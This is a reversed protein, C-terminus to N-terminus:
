HNIYYREDRINREINQLANLTRKKDRLNLETVIANLVVTIAALSNSFMINDTKIEICHHVSDHIPSAKKDTFAIVPIGLDRAFAVAEVTARSYPSFSFAILLDKPSMFSIQEKFHLFDSSLHDAHYSYLKLLFTMLQSLQSSLELGMCYIHEAQMIKKIIESFEHTDIERVTETINQINNRAVIDLTKSKEGLGAAAFQYKETPSLQSKLAGSLHHKLEKYGRFGLIQAFRVISAQSVNAHHAVEKIPLLAVLRMNELFFDAVKRQNPPLDTLSKYIREKITQTM